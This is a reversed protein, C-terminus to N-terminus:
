WHCSVPLDVLAAPRSLLPHEAELALRLVEARDALKSRLLEAEYPPPPENIPPPRPRRFSGM